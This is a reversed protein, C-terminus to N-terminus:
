ALGKTYTTGSNGFHATLVEGKPLGEEPFSLHVWRGEQICQDFGIEDTHALIVKCIELPSGYEACTFDAALGRMHASSKSGGIAANLKPGRYASTIRLPYGLISRLRELGRALLLLNASVEADPTNDIGKRVATDSECLEQLSFHPTLSM